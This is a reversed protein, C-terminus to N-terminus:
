DWAYAQEGGRCEHCEDAVDAAKGGCAVKSAIESQGWAFAGTAQTTPEARDALASVHIDAHEQGM